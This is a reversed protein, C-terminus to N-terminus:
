KRRSFLLKDFLITVGLVLIVTGWQLGTIYGTPLAMVAAIADWWGGIIGTTLTLATLAATIQTPNQRALKLHVFSGIIGGIALLIYLAQLAPILRALQTLTLTTSFLGGYLGYKHALSYFTQETPKRDVEWAKGPPLLFYENNPNFPELLNNM